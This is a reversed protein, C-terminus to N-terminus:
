RAGPEGARQFRNRLLVASLNLVVLFALLVLIAAATKAEFAPEPSDAWLFIQVPLVTSPSRPGTPIDVVFAVMGIMLLPATEGLARAMGLITGTLIGPMALPLVHHTVCQFPSAGVALAAERVSPPVAALAARAAIIVVPLTLLALVIGGVLPASRPMELSNLLFALGLLGFVISPVAALNHINVEILDTFRNRPAFEELHVATAVGVPFSLALTVALTLATGVVAGWVGALEPERSDGSTLFRTNIGSEIRGREKLALLWAVQDDRLRREAEPRAVDVSGKFFLDADDSVPLTLTQRTGIVSPDARVADGLEFAAGSSVLGRLRRKARREEVAPFESYLSKHILSDYNAGALVAPDRTGEPDIVAPDLFIELTVEHGFFGSYGRLVIGTLLLALTGLAAAISLVGYLRFRREAANRKRLRREAAAADTWSSTGRGLAESM